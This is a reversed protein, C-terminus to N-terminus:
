VGASVTAAEYRPSQDMGTRTAPSGATRAQGHGPFGNAMM